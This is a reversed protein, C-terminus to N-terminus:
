GYTIRITASGASSGGLTFFAKILTDSSFVLTPASVYTNGISLDIEKEAMLLEPAEVTGISLQATANFTTGVFVDISTIGKTAPITVIDEISSSGIGLEIVTSVSAEQIGEVTSELNSVGQETAQLSTGFDVAGLEDTFNRFAPIYKSLNNLIQVQEDTM